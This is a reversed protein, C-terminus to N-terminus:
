GDIAYDSEPSSFVLSCTNKSSQAILVLTGVTWMYLLRTSTSYKIKESAAVAAVVKADLKNFDQDPNLSSLMKFLWHNEETRYPQTIYAQLSAFFNYPPCNFNKFTSDARNRSYYLKKEGASYPVNPTKKQLLFRINFSPIRKQYFQNRMNIHLLRRKM